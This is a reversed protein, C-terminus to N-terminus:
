EERTFVDIINCFSELFTIDENTVTMRITHMVRKRVENTKAISALFKKKSEIHGKILQFNSEFLRWKKDIVTSFDILNIYSYLEERLPDEERKQACDVRIKQPVGNLWWEQEAEGFEAQLTLRILNYLSIEIKNIYRYAIVRSEKKAAKEEILHKIKEEEQQRREKNDESVYWELEDALTNISHKVSSDNIVDGVKSIAWSRHLSDGSRMKGAVHLATARCGTFPIGLSNTSINCVPCLWDNEGTIKENNENM